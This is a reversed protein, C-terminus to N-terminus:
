LQSPMSSYFYYQCRLFWPTDRVAYRMDSRRGGESKGFGRVDVHIVVYDNSVWFAADPGEFPTLPSVCFKGMSLGTEAFSKLKEGWEQPSKDKGYPSLSMIVPFIGPKDPRYVNVCLKIGDRMRVFVDKEAVIGEPPPVVELKYESM